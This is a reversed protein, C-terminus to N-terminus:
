VRERVVSKRDRQAFYQIPKIVRIIQSRGGVGQKSIKVKGKLVCMMDKAEDGECYIMEQTQFAPDDFQSELGGTGARNLGEM